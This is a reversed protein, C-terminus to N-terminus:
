QLAFWSSKVWNKLLCISLMACTALSFNARWRKWGLLRTYAGQKLRSQMFCLLVLVQRPLMWSAAVWIFSLFTLWAEQTKKCWWIFSSASLFFLPFCHPLILLIEIVPEWIGLSCRTCSFRCSTKLTPQNPQLQLWFTASIPNGDESLEAACILQIEFWSLLSLFHCLLRLVQTLLVKELRKFTSIM